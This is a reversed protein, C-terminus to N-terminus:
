KRKGYGPMKFGRSKKQIPTVEGFDGEHMNEVFLNHMAEAGEYNKPAEWHDPGKYKKHDEPYQFSYDEELTTTSSGPVSKYRYKFKDGPKGSFTRYEGKSKPEETVAPKIKSAEAKARASAQSKTDTNGLMVQKARGQQTGSVSANHDTDYGHKEITARDLNKYGIKEGAKNTTQKQGKYKKKLEAGIDKRNSRLQKGLSSFFDSLKGKAPSSKMKFGSRGTTRAM